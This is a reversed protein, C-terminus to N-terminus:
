RRSKWRGNNDIVCRRPADDVREDRSIRWRLVTRCNCVVACDSGDKKTGQNSEKLMDSFGVGEFASWHVPELALLNSLYAVM